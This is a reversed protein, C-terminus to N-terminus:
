VRLITILTCIFKLCLSDGLLGDSINLINSLGANIQNSSSGRDQLLQECDEIIIVSDHLYQKIYTLLGPDSLCSAMEMPLYVFDKESSNILHRIYTTKGSGQIGHLIVIGSGKEEIFSKINKDVEVFDDNYLQHINFDVPEKIGMTKTDFDNYRKCLYKITNVQPEKKVFRNRYQMTFDELFHLAEKDGRLDAVARM